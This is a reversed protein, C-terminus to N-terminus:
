KGQYDRARPKISDYKGPKARAIWAKSARSLFWQGSQRSAERHLTKSHKPEEDAQM